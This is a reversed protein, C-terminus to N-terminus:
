HWQGGDKATVRVLYVRESKSNEGVLTEGRPWGTHVGAFGAFRYELRGAPEFGRLHGPHFRLPTKDAAWRSAQM